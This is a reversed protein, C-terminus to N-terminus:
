AMVRLPNETSNYWEVFSYLGDEISIQPAFDIKSALKDINAYTIKMEGNYTETFKLNAKKESYKELLRIFYLLQIPKNNGINYVSFPEHTTPPLDLLKLMSIVIDNVHTFDRQLEGNGFVEINAGSYIHDLFKFYAMDPRGYPGYVTFFRLASSPIHYLNAYSYALLENSAKSAAYLNLPKLISHHELFPIEDNGGYVSSSSAFIFHRVKWTKALEMIQYFGLVNSNIYAEPNEFSYRVGAQAALHIIYNCQLERILSNSQGTQSLDAKLFFVNPYKNSNLWYKTELLDQLFGLNELRKYKLKVDYYSNLNDIIYLEINPDKAWQMALHYGVFGAGGTLFIKKLILM